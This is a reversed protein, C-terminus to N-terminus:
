YSWYQGDPLILKGLQKTSAVYSLFGPDNGYIWEMVVSFKQWVTISLHSLDHPCEAYCSALVGDVM